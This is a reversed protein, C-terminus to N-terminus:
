TQPATGIADGPNSKAAKKRARITDFLKKTAALDAALEFPAPVLAHKGPAPTHAGTIDHCRKILRRMEDCEAPPIWIVENIKGTVIQSKFRSVVGALLDHEIIRELTARLRSYVQRMAQVNAANPQPNWTAAINKHDQGLEKLCELPPKCDWPLGKVYKGPTGDNWELSLVHPPTPAEESLALLDNLFVVDHTFVIVQRKTAEEVLRAAIMERHWHDLSSVPDDFVLSSQHSAQSLEAMFAALAVCRQEGESAIEIVKHGTAPALRLGFRTEGKKGQVAELSVELTRLGLAKTETQFRDRFADTVFHKTLDTSKATIAATHTDKQCDKLRNILKQREIQALVDSKVGVLWEHAALESREDMLKKRTAPDHASEETKARAELATSTNRISAEASKPIACPAKWIQEAVNKRLVGLREDAQKAFAAVAARREPKMGVLDADLKELEPVLETITALKDEAVKLRKAFEEAIQQSKDTCFAEFATLREVTEAELDQQCLVCRAADGTFPFTQDVYTSSASFDRAAEWMTRWLATGTGILYTSDFRGLAFARAADNTSRAEGVWLRLVEVREDALGTAASAVQAAFADLRAAAARTEKAKQKPDSKLAECLDQLRQTKEVDLGALADVDAPKTTATLNAVLKGVKTAADYKWNAAVGTISASIKNVEAELRDRIADCTKSLMPLVDLGHPTFEAPSDENLYNGASSADFVFVNALRPDSTVGDMWTISVDKGAVVFVISASARTASAPAFVNRRIVPPAGRARCAKKIVRAYGSKGSGNDGYIVTLGPSAGFPIVQDSPLRDVHKLAGVSVLSVSEESGPALPLHTGALPEAVLAPGSSNDVEHKGRCLRELEELDTDEIAGKVIIRRLADRQWVPRNFSWTLIDHLASLPKALPKASM